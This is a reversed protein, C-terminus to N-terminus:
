SSQIPFMNSDLIEKSSSYFTPDYVVSTQRSIKYLNSLIKYTQEIYEGNVQIKHEELCHNNCIENIKAYDLEKKDQSWKYCNALFSGQFMMQEFYLNQFEKDLKHQLIAILYKGPRKSSSFIMDSLNKTFINAAM